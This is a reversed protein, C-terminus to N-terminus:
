LEIPDAEDVIFGYCCADWTSNYTTGGPCTTSTFRFSPHCVLGDANPRLGGTISKQENKNLSKGLNSINELM